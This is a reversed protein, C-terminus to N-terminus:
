GFFSTFVMELGWTHLGDHTLEISCIPVDKKPPFYANQSLEEGLLSHHDFSSSM